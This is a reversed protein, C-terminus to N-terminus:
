GVFRIFRPRSVNSPVILLAVQDYDQSKLGYVEPHSLHRLVFAVVWAVIEVIRLLMRSVDSIMLLANFFGPFFLRLSAAQLVILPM